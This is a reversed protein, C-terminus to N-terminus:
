SEPTDYIKEYKDIHRLAQEYNMQDAIRSADKFIEPYAIMEEVFKNKGSQKVGLLDGSKREKLDEEAIKFGDNTSCMVRIRNNIEESELVCFAQRSGRGVRGRLQHLTSLGFREANKIVILNAEPVNVGVEIVTTSVLVQIQGTRFLEIIADKEAPKTDGTVYGVKYGLPELLKKYEASIEEVSGIGAMVSEEDAEEKLPCVVYARMGSKLCKIIFGGTKEGNDFYTKVPLRGAPKELIQYVDTGEGYIAKALSRPIPTASMTIMHMEDSFRETRQLVGFRHEEDVIVLGIGDMPIDATLIATTGVIYKIDRNQIGRTMEARKAAKVNGDYYAIEEKPVIKSLELYHQQALIQTPAMIVSQFDNEAACRMLMFAVISKGCGVDGQVLANVRSGSGAKEMIDLITKRQDGTLQFPLHDMLDITEANKTLKFSSARRRDRNKIMLRFYVLDDLILRKEGAKADEMVKPFHVKTFATNIDPYGIRMDEPVTEEEGDQICLAVHEAFTSDAVGKIKSYIPYIKLSETIHDTFTPNFISYGYIPHHRFSGMFLIERASIAALYGAINRANIFTINFKTGDPDVAKVVTLAKGNTNRKEISSIRGIVALDASGSSFDADKLRTEKSYDNYRRPIWRLIAPDGTINKRAYANKHATRLNQYVAMYVKKGKIIVSKNVEIQDPLSAGAPFIHRIRHTTELNNQRRFVSM